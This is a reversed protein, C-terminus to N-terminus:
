VSHQLQIIRENDPKAKVHGQKQVQPFHFCLHKYTRFIELHGSDDLKSHQCTELKHLAQTREKIVLIVFAFRFCNQDQTQM